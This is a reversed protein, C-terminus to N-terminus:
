AAESEALLLTSLSSIGSKPKPRAVAVYSFQDLGVRVQVLHVLGKEFAGLAARGLDALQRREPEPLTSIGPTVDIGLFGCHYELRAGAPAQAVWACFEVDTFTPKTARRNTSTVAVM